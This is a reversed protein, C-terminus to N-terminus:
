RLSAGLSALVVIFIAGTLLGAGYAVSALRGTGGEASALASRLSGLFWIYFLMGVSVITLGARVAGQHDTFFRAWESAPADTEPPKPFVILFGVILFIVFIVGGAAGEKAYRDEKM